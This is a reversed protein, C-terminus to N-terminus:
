FLNQSNGTEGDTQGLQNTILQHDFSISEFGGAVDGDADQDVLLATFNRPSNASQAGVTVTVLGTTAFPVTVTIQSNSITVIIASTGNFTVTAGALNTGIITASKGALGSDALPSGNNDVGTVSTITPAAATVDFSASAGSSLGNASAMLQQGNGANV